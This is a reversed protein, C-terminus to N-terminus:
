LAVGALAPDLKRDEFAKTLKAKEDPGPGDNDKGQSTEGDGLKEIAKAIDGFREDTDSKFDTVLKAFEERTPPKEAEAKEEAAKAISEVIKEPLAEVAKEIQEVRETEQDTWGVLPVNAFDDSSGEAKALGWSDPLSGVANLARARSIIHRKAADPNKARGLAQVANSLDSANHIPFSGDAMAAGSAAAERRQAADFNRKEIDADIDPAIDEEVEAESLGLVEALKAITRRGRKRRRSPPYEPNRRSGGPRSPSGSPPAPRTGGPRAPPVSTDAGGRATSPTPQRAPPRNLDAREGGPAVHTPKGATVHGGGQVQGGGVIHPADRQGAIRARMADLTHPDVEGTPKIGHARQFKAVARGVNGHYGLTRLINIATAKRNAAAVQPNEAKQGPHHPQAKGDGPGIRQGPQAATVGATASFRGRDRSHKREDFPKRKNFTVGHEALFDEPMAALATDSDDGLAKFIAEVSAETEEVPEEIDLKLLDGGSAAHSAAKMSAWLAGSACAEARSGLNAQQLGPWNLDGTDCLRQAANIGIAIAHGVPTGKDVLHTAARHGWSAEWAVQMPKPLRTIWNDGGHGLPRVSGLKEVPTRMGYGQISVGTFKGSDVLDRGEASPDIGVVWSGKRITEGDVTFDAPAIYNEVVRGFPNLDEHMKNVLAGNEMFRHAAKRIEEESAWRDLVDRQGPRYSMGAKEMHGPEAVVIYAAKWDASKVLRTPLEFADRDTGEAEAKLLFFRKANAGKDVLSLARPDVDSLEHLM